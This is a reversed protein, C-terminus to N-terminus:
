SAGGFDALSWATDIHDAADALHVHIGLGALQPITSEHRNM